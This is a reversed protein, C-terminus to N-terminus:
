EVEEAEEPNAADRKREKGCVREEDRRSGRSKQPIKRPRFSLHSHGASIPGKKGIKKGSSHSPKM